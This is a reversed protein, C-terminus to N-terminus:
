EREDLPESRAQPIIKATSEQTLGIRPLTKADDIFRQARRLRLQQVRGDQLVLVPHIPFQLIGLGADVPVIFCNRFQLTAKALIQSSVQNVESRQVLLELV